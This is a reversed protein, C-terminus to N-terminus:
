SSYKGIHMAKSQHGLFMFLIGFSLELFVTTLNFFFASDKELSFLMTKTHQM